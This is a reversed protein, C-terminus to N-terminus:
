RVLRVADKEPSTRMVTSQFRTSFISPALSTAPSGRRSSATGTTSHGSKLALFEIAELRKREFFLSRERESDSRRLREKDEVEVESIKQRKDARKDSVDRIRKETRLCAADLEKALETTALELHKDKREHASGGWLCQVKLKTQENPDGWILLEDGNYVKTWNKSPGFPKKSDCSDLMQGNIRIGLTAKTSIWLHYSKEDGALDQTWPLPVKAPDNSPDYGEKWLLVKFAYKPVKSNFRDEYVATNELGRGFSVLTDTMLCEIDRVCSMTDSAILAITRPQGDEQLVPVVRLSDPIETNNTAAGDAFPGTAPFDMNVDEDPSSQIVPTNQRELATVPPFYKMALSWLPTKGPLFEEKRRNAALLFADYQLQTMEPYNLHWTRRDQAWFHKKSVPEDIQRGSNSRQIPPMRSLLNYEEITPDAVDDMYGESKLRKLAPKETPTSDNDFDASAALPSPSKRKSANFDSSAISYSSANPDEVGVVSVGLSQSAVNEVLSQLQDASQAHDISVSREPRFISGLKVLTAGSDGSDGSDYAEDDQGEFNSGNSGDGTMKAAPLNLQSEPVAGSSGVASVGVEGFLRLPRMTGQGFTYNWGINEKEDQEQQENEDERESEEGASDSVRDNEDEIQYVNPQHQTGHYQSSELVDEEDTIEDFSQSAEITRSHIWPHEDLEEVTARNEPRRQLMACIFDIGSDSIGREDLPRIDLLMTMIQHLLESYSTGSKVPYPPQGTMSYFIVGGLSWIDVAHNYRQGPARRAKKGRSRVGKDDYEAYENYVEPACYLLTGCFTRLFTQETDVMKSLGFDTLKVELPNLSNILINDPKVDRHTINNNHLYALASLLQQSIIRAEAEPFPGEDAVHKGIDGGPVLEMIIILLRDEWDFNEMYRVINPHKVRQMIKMENEVKQDLVGNKIFRRKEIEKAAYPMGDYKSTVKYVVAFAGKGIMGIRNYKGSGNWERRVGRNDKRKTPSRQESPQREPRRPTILQGANKFLDVHGGPGATITEVPGPLLNHRLFYDDVKRQYADMYEDARRPIRVRFTLDQMENHLYIRILSGSSLMWKLIPKKTPDRHANKLLRDDVFTGNTSKDEIMVTGHENVFIRFHINSIRRLPDNAFVIDCRGPNRGFVFGAAPSHVQSSLRLIIAHNGHNAPNSEFQSPRDEHEYDLEVDDAEDRGILYPSETKLLQQVEIRATDSHPYLVCIIDSIDEDSFGSNQKGLRRPDLINQTAQTPEQTPEEGDM